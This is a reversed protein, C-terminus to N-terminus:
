NGASHYSTNISKRYSEPYEDHQSKSEADSSKSTTPVAGKTFAYPDDDEDYEDQDDYYEDQDEYYEDQVEYYEDQDQDYEDEEDFLEKGEKSPAAGHSPDGKSRNSRAASESYDEEGDEYITPQQKKKFLSKLTPTTAITSNDGDGWQFNEGGFGGDITSIDDDDNGGFIYNIPSKFFSQFASAEDPEVPLPPPPPAPNEVPTPMAPHYYPTGEQEFDDDDDDDEEEEDSAASIYTQGRSMDDISYALSLDDRRRSNGSISNDFNSTEGLQSIGALFSDSSERRSM